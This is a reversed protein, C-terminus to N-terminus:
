MSLGTILIYFARPAMDKQFWTWYNEIKMWFNIFNHKLADKLYNVHDINSVGKQLNIQLLLDPLLYYPIYFKSLKERVLRMFFINSEKAQCKFGEGVEESRVYRAKRVQWFSCGKGRQISTAGVASLL